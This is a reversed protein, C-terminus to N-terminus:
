IRVALPAIAGSSYSSSEVTLESNQVPLARNSGLQMSHEHESSLSAPSTYWGCLLSCASPKSEPRLLTYHSIHGADMRGYKNKM